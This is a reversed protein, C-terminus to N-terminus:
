LKDVLSNVQRGTKQDSQTAGRALLSGKRSGLPELTSRALMRPQKAGPHKQTYQPAASGLKPQEHPTPLHSDAKPPQRESRKTQHYQQLLCQRLTSIDFRQRKSEAAGREPQCILRIAPPNAESLGEPERRKNKYIQLESIVLNLQDKLSQNEQRLVQVLKESEKAKKPNTPKKDRRKGESSERIATVGNNLAYMSAPQVSGRKADFPQQTKEWKKQVM